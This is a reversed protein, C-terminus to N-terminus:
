SHSISDNISFSDKVMRGKSVDSGGYIEFMKFTVWKQPDNNCCNVNTEVVPM